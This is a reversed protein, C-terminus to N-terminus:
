QQRNEKEYILGIIDKSEQWAAQQKHSTAQQKHSAKIKGCKLRLNHGPGQPGPGTSNIQMGYHPM